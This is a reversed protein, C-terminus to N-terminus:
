GRRSTRWCRRVRRRGPGTPLELREDALDHEVDGGAPDSMSGASSRRRLRSCRPRAHREGVGVAHGVVLHGRELRQLPRQRDEVVVGESGLLRGGARGAAVEADADASSRRASTPRRRSSRRGLARRDADLRAALDVDVHGAARGAVAQLRGHDLERGVGEPRVDVVHGRDLAVGGHGREAGAGAAAAAPRHGGPRDPLGGRDQPGLEGRMAACLSSAASGSMSSACLRAPTRPSGSAGDTLKASSASM